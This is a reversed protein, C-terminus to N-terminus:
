APNPIVDQDIDVNVLERIDSTKTTSEATMQKMEVSLRSPFPFISM